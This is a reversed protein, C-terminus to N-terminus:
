RSHDLLDKLKNAPIAYSIGSPHSLASEKTGKVFVMNVIAVVDGSTPHYLPSGSNGPYATGDLQFVPYAGAALQRIARANLEGANAAPITIPTIASIMARNTAPILGLVTGIPFGTFLFIEGERVRDSDGLRLAPLPPGDIKLLALDASPESAIKRARRVQVATGSSPVAVAIMEGHESDVLAPIVHDNTAILSGDGVAFGTGRLLFEPNRIREFTGVAVISPKVREIAAVNDSQAFGPAPVVLLIALSWLARVIMRCPIPQIRRSPGRAADEGNMQM